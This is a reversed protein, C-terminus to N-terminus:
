LVIELEQMIEAFLAENKGCVKAQLTAANNLIEKKLDALTIAADYIKDALANRAENSIYESAHGLTKLMELKM